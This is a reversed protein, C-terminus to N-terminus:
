MFTNVVTKLLSEAASCNAAAVSSTRFVRPVSRILSGTYMQHKLGKGESRELRMPIYHKKSTCAWAGTESLHLCAKWIAVVVQFSFDTSCFYDKIRLQIDVLSPLAHSGSLRCPEAHIM